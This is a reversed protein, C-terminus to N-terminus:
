FLRIYAQTSNGYTAHGTKVEVKCTNEFHLYRCGRNFTEGDPFFIRNTVGTTGGSFSYYFSSNTSDWSYPVPNGSAGTFRGAELLFQTAGHGSDHDNHHTYQHGIGGIWCWEYGDSDFQYSTFTTATGDLTIRIQVQRNLHDNSTGTTHKYSIAGYLAGGNTSSTIDVVTNFGTSSDWGTYADPHATTLFRAAAYSQVSATSTSYLRYLTCDSIDIAGPYSYDGVTVTKGIGSGGSSGAPFFDTFNSM